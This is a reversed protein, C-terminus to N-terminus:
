LRVIADPLPPGVGAAHSLVLRHQLEAVAETSIRTRALSGFGTNVGYAVRGEDLVAQVTAHSADIAAWCGPDLAVRCDAEALRRLGALDLRGPVLIETPRSEM